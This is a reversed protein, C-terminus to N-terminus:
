HHQLTVLSQIITDWRIDPSDICNIYWLAHCQITYSICYRKPVFLIPWQKPNKDYFCNYKTSNNSGTVSLTSNSELYVSTRSLDPTQVTAFKLATRSISSTCFDTSHNVINQQGFMPVLYKGIESNGLYLCGELLNIEIFIYKNSIFLTHMTYYKRHGRYHFWYNSFGILPEFPISPWVNDKRNESKRKELKETEEEEIWICGIIDLYAQELNM